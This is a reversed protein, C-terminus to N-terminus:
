EFWSIVDSIVLGLRHPHLFPTGWWGAFKNFVIKLLMYVYLVIGAVTCNLTHTQPRKSAPVTPEFGAPLMYSKQRKHTNHTTLYLDRRRSSGEDLPTRGLTARRMIITCGRFHPPGPAITATSGHYFSPLQRRFIYIVTSYLSVLM